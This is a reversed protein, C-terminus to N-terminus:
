HLVDNFSFKFEYVMDKTDHFEMELALDQQVMTVIM